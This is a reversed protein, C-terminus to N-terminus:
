FAAVAKHGVSRVATVDQSTGQIVTWYQLQLLRDQKLVVFVEGFPV